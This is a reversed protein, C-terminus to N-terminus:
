IQIHLHPYYKLVVREMGLAHDPEIAQITSM